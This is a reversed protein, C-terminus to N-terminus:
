ESHVAQWLHQSEKDQHHDSSAVDMCSQVSMGEEEPEALKSKSSNVGSNRYLSM